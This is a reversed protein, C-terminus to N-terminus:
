RVNGRQAVSLITTIALHIWLRDVIYVEVSGFMLRSLTCEVEVVVYLCARFCARVKKAKKAVGSEEDTWTVEFQSQQLKEEEKTVVMSVKM